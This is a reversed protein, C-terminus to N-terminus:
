FKKNEVLVPMIKEDKTMMTRQAKNVESMFDSMWFDGFLGSAKTIASAMLNYLCTFLIHQM